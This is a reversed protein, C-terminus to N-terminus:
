IDTQGGGRQLRKGVQRLQRCGQPPQAPNWLQLHLGQPGDVQQLLPVQQGRPRQLGGLGVQAGVQLLDVATRLSDLRILGEDSKEARVRRYGHKNGSGNPDSGEPAGQGANWLCLSEEVLGPERQAQEEM